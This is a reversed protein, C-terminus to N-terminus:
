TDTHHRLHAHANPTQKSSTTLPTNANKDDTSIFSQETHRDTHGLWFKTIVKTPFFISALQQILYIFLHYIILYSM